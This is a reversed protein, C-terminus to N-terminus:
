LRGHQYFGRDGKFLTIKDFQFSEDIWETPYFSLAEKIQELGDKKLERLAKRTMESEDGLIFAGDFLGKQTESMGIERIQSFAKKRLPIMKERMELMQMRAAEIAEHLEDARKWKEEDSYEYKEWLADLERCM